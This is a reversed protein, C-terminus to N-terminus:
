QSPESGRWALQLRERSAARLKLLGLERAMLPLASEEDHGDDRYQCALSALESLSVEDVSRVNGSQPRRFGVLANECSDKPWFFVGVDEQRPLFHKEALRVVRDQIRAGTRSWNHARAIRRALVEDRIPGEVGIVHDIMDLLTTDYTPEFFADPNGSYGAAGLDAEVFTRGGVDQPSLEASHDSAYVVSPEIDAPDSASAGTSRFLM